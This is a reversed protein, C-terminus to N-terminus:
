SAARWTRQEGVGNYGSRFGRSLVAGGDDIVQVQWYVGLGRLETRVWREVQEQSAFPTGVGAPVVGDADLDPGGVLCKDGRVSVYVLRLM